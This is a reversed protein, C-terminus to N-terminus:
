EPTKDGALSEFMCPALESYEKIACPANFEMVRPMILSNSVGHSVGHHCGIPYALAHIAGTPANCFAMGAYMSGLLMQGRAEANQGNHYVEHINRGLIRLAEKALLDSLDNKLFKSTYAEIAHVMADVGTAATVAQPVSLTLNGDLLAADPLM